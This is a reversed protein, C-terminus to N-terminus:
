DADDSEEAPEGVAEELPEHLPLNRLTQLEERLDDLERQTNRLDARLRLENIFAILFWVLMGVIFAEFIVLILPVDQFQWFFLNIDVQQEVNMISFGLLVILLLAVGLWKLIWM